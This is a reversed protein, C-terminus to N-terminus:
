EGENYLHDMYDAYLDDDSKDALSTGGSVSLSLIEESPELIVVPKYDFAVEAKIFQEFLKSLSTGKRKALEKGQSIVEANLKLTLKTATM